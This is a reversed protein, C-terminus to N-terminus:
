GFLHSWTASVLARQAVFEAIDVRASGATSETALRVAHQRARYLRYADACGDALEAPLLGHGAARHLLAINGVDEALDPHAHSCDLVLAQVIFEIDVMGGADHKLDFM